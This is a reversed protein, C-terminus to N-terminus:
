VSALALTLTATPTWIRTITPMELPEVSLSTSEATSSAGTATKDFKKTSFTVYNFSSALTTSMEIVTYNTTVDFHLSQIMVRTPGHVTTSLDIQTTTMATLTEPIVTWYQDIFKCARTDNENNWCIRKDVDKPPEPGSVSQWPAVYYTTLERISPIPTSFATDQTTTIYELEYGYQSSFTVNQGCHSVTIRTALGTLITACITTPSATYITKCGSSTKRSSAPSSTPSSSTNWYPPGVLSLQTDTYASTSALPCLTIQPVYTTEVQSMMTIPTSPAHPSPIYYGYTIPVTPATSIRAPSANARSMRVLQQGQRDENARDMHRKFLRHRKCQGGALFVSMTCFVSLLYRVRAMIPHAIQVWPFIITALIEHLRSYSFIILQLNNISCMGIGALHLM